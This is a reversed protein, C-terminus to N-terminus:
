TEHDPIELTPKDASEHRMAMPVQDRRNSIPSELSDKAKEM